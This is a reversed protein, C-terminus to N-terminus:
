LECIINTSDYQFDLKEWSRYYYGQAKLPNKDKLFDKALIPNSYWQSLSNGLLLESKSFKPFNAVNDFIQSKAFTKKIIKTAYDKGAKCLNDKWADHSNTRTPAKMTFWKAFISYDRLEEFIFLVKWRCVRDKYPCSFPGLTLVQLLGLVGFVMGLEAHECPPIWFLVPNGKHAPLVAVCQHFQIPLALM